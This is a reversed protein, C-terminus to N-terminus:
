DWSLGAFCTQGGDPRVRCIMSRDGDDRFSAYLPYTAADPPFKNWKQGDFTYLLSGSKPLFLKSNLPPKSQALVMLRKKRINTDGGGTQLVTGRVGAEHLLAILEQNEAPGGFTSSVILDDPPEALWRFCELSPRDYEGGTARTSYTFAYSASMWGAVILLTFWSFRYPRPFLLAFALLAVYCLVIAFEVPSVIRSYEPVLSIVFSHCLPLFGLVGALAVVRGRDPGFASWLGGWLILCGCFTGLLLRPDYLAFLTLYLACIGGVISYVVCSVARTAAAKM